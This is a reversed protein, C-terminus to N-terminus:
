CMFPLLQPRKLMRAACCASYLGVAAQRYARQCCARRAAPPRHAERRCHWRSHQLLSSPHCAAGRRASSASWACCQLACASASPPPCARLWRRQPTHAAPCCWRCCWRWSLAPSWKSWCPGCCSFAHLCPPSLTSLGQAGGAGQGPQVLWGGGVGVQVPAARLLRLTTLLSGRLLSLELTCRATFDHAPEGTQAPPAAGKGAAAEAPRALRIGVRRLAVYPAAALLAEAVAANDFALALHLPTADEFRAEPAAGGDGGAFGPEGRALRVSAVAGPDAGAALLLAAAHASGLIAAHHLPSWPLPEPMCASADAGAKLAAGVAQVDMSRIAAHLQALPDDM